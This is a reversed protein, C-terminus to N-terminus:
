ISALPMYADVYLRANDAGSFTLRHEMSAGRTPVANSQNGDVIFDVVFLGAQPARKYEKQMFTNVAPEVEEFIPLGDRKVNIKTLTTNFIHERKIIAGTISGLPMQVTFSGAANTSYTGNLMACVLGKYPSDAPQPNGTEAWARLTPATAGVIKVLVQLTNIGAERSTDLNGWEQGVITRAFVESFDLTLHTAEDFLGKYKNIADLDPGSIDWIPKSNLKVQVREIMAKTFATGGLELIFRRFTQGPEVDMIATGSAVVNQFDPMKQLIM